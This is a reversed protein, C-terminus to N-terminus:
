PRRELRQNLRERAAELQEPTLAQAVDDRLSRAGANGGATALSLWYFAEADDQQVGEGKAYLTGLRSQAQALGNEAAKRLWRRAADTDAAGGLGKEYLEALLMQAKANGKQAAALFRQRAKDSAQPVGDGRYHMLGARYNAEALGRDGATEFWKLAQGADKPLGKGELYLLGLHLEAEPLGQAVAKRTWELSEPTRQLVQAIAAMNYQARADGAQAPDRCVREAERYNAISFLLYCSQLEKSSVPAAKPAEPAPTSPSPTEVKGGQAALRAAFDAVVAPCAVGYGSRLKRLNAPTPARDQYRRAIVACRKEREASVQKLYEARSPDTRYRVLYDALPDIYPQDLLAQYESHALGTRAEQNPTDAEPKTACGSLLLAAAFAAFAALRSLHSSCRDPRALGEHATWGRAHLAPSHARNSAASDLTM